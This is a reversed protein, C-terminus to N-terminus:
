RPNNMIELSRNVEGRLKALAEGDVTMSESLRKGFAPDDLWGQFNVLSQRYEACNVDAMLRIVNQELLWTYNRTNDRLVGDLQACVTKRHSFAVQRLGKAAAIASVDGGAALRYMLPGIAEEGFAALTIANADAVSQNDATGFGVLLDRMEKVYELEVKKQELAHNVKDNLWWGAALVVIGSFVSGIAQLIDWFDKKPPPSAASKELSELREEWTPATGIKSELHAIREEVSPM